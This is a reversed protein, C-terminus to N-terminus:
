RYGRLEYEIDIGSVTWVATHATRIEVSIYRGQAFANVVQDPETLTQEASWTIADTPSMRSGVRVALTGYNQARVHLRRVFKVRAADGFDLDYRGIKAGVTVADATDQQIAQDAAGLVLSETSLSFNQQNLYRTDDDIIEEQDDIIESSADDNITGIAACSVTDLDRVGFADNAVDYVLAKTCLSQGTEPYCIWVEGKARHFVVFLAEYNTSDLNAFLYERMRAQGISRLNTGDTEVIDGDTVVIHKGNVDCVAHRTLAGVSPLLPRFSFVDNGGIYDAAYLSSRKYILLSGRLPVACMIPGPTASLEIEGAQNDAAATWESPITGPEAAASWKVKSEHLGSPEDINLAFLHSNQAGLFAALSKCTTGAPFGPLAVFPTGVDGAWYLPTDLSNSVVPINNLLTSSWQYPFDVPTLSPSVDDSNSTERATISDAGFGLWYNTTGVRANLLHYLPDPWTGYAPRQGGIRQAFGRRFIVNQISGGWFDPGLETTPTDVAYGKTPRFKLLKKPYSM